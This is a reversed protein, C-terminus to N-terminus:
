PELGESQWFIREKEKPKKNAQQKKTRQKTARLTIVFAFSMFCCAFSWVVLNHVIHYFTANM